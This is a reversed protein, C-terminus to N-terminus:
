VFAGRYVKKDYIYAVDATDMHFGIGRDTDMACDM